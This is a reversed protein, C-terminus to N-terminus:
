LEVQDKPSIGYSDWLKKLKGSESLSKLIQNLKDKTLQKNSRLLITHEYKQDLENSVLIREKAQPFKKFYQTLLSKTVIALQPLDRKSISLINSEHNTRLEVNFKTQLYERDTKFDAFKYHYGLIGLIKKGSIDKFYEQTRGKAAHAIFVEGGHLIVNSAEMDYDKWGWQLNEFFLLDYEGNEYDKYRRKSSTLQFKFLFEDQSENLLKILDITIGKIENKYQGIFPPFLYGGVKVTTPAAFNSQSIM